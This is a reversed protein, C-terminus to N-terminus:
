EDGSAWAPILKVSVQQPRFHGKSDRVAPGTKWVRIERVVTRLMLNMDAGSSMDWNDLLGVIVPVPDSAARSAERAAAALQKELLDREARLDGLARQWIEPPMGDITASQRALGVLERDVRAIEGAIREADGRARIESRTREELAVEQADAEEAISAIFTRAEALLVSLPVAVGGGPCDGYRNQRACRFSVPRDPGGGSAVLASKCHGCRLLGSVPYVPTINRQFRDASGTRRERYAAWEDEGIVPEHAGKVWGRRKCKGRDRCRCSPDHVRLLGAGFGSDLVSIVTPASWIRGETNPIAAENLRRAIATSGEGRTYARYMEALVQGTVPDPVYREAEGTRRTRKPDDEKPVRGLRRYGFRAARSAAPLGNERRHKMVTMWNEGIINSQMEAMNFANTRNYKGMATQSDVPETASILSGGAAEVRRANLEAEVTNRGWRDFRYIVIEGVDGSEVRKILDAVRRKFNRGTADLDEVWGAIRRGNAKAWGEIAIRQLAPSVMEERAQSVRVYGVAPTVGPVIRGIRCPASFSRRVLISDPANLHGGRRTM